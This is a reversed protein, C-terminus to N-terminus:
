GGVEECVAQKGASRLRERWANLGGPCREVAPAGECQRCTYCCQGQSRVDADVASTQAHTKKMNPHTRRRALPSAM